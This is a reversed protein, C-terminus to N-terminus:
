DFVMRCDDYDWSRPGYLETLYLDLLEEFDDEHKFVDFSEWEVWTWPYADRAAIGIVPYPSYSDCNCFLEVGKEAEIAKAVAYLESGQQDCTGGGHGLTWYSDVLYNVPNDEDDGIEFRLAEAHNKLFAAAREATVEPLETECVGYVWIVEVHKRM